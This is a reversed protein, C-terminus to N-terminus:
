LEVDDMHAGLYSVPLTTVLRRKLFIYSASSSKYTANCHKGSSPLPCQQTEWLPTSPMATNGLPTYLTNSHIGRLLTGPSRGGKGKGKMHDNSHLLNLEKGGGKWDAKPSDSYCQRVVVQTQTQTCLHLQEGLTNVPACSLSGWMSSNATFKRQEKNQIHTM